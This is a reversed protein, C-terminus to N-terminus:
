FCYRNHFCYFIKGCSKCYHEKTRALAVPVFGVVHGVAIVADVLLIDDRYGFQFVAIGVYEGLGVFVLQYFLVDFDLCADSAIVDAAVDVLLYCQLVLCSGDNDTDVLAAHVSEQCFSLFDNHIQLSEVDTTVALLWLYTGYVVVFVM